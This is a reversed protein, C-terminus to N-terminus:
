SEENVNIDMGSQKYFSLKTENYEKTKENFEESSQLVEKYKENIMTIQDQLEDMLPTEEKFMGYLDRDLQLANSYQNYLKEYVSYRELMISYLQQAKSKLEPEKIDNIFPSITEFEAKSAALSEQEKKLHEQKKEVIVLADDALKKIDDAEKLGLSIIKEYILQEENELQVLPDQQEEFMKESQVVKELTEYIKEIPNQKVMCGTLLSLLLLWSMILSLKRFIVVVFGGESVTKSYRDNRNKVIGKYVKILNKTHSTWRYM